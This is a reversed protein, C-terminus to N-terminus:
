KIHLFFSLVQSIHKSAKKEEPLASALPQELLVAKLCIAITLLFQPSLFIILNFLSSPPALSPFIISDFWGLSLSAINIGNTEACYETTAGLEILTAPRLTM